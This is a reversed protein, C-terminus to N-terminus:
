STLLVAVRRQGRGSRGGRGGRLSGDPRTSIGVLKKAEVTDHPGDRRSRQFRSLRGEIVHLVTAISVHWDARLLWGKGLGSADKEEDNLSRSLCERGRMWERRNEQGISNWVRGSHRHACDHWSAPRGV